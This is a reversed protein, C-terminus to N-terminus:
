SCQSSSEQGPMLNSGTKFIFLQCFKWILKVIKGNVGGQIPIRYQKHDVSNSRDRQESQKYARRAEDFEKLVEEEDFGRYSGDTTISKWAFKADLQKLFNRVRLLAFYSSESPLTLIFPQVEDARSALQRKRLSKQRRKIDIISTLLQALATLMEMSTYNSDKDADNSSDKGNGNDRGSGNPEDGAINDENDHNGSDGSARNDRDAGNDKDNGSHEDEIDGSHDSENADKLENDSDKDNRQKGANQKKVDTEHTEVDLGHSMEKTSANAKAMRKGTQQNKVTANSDMNQKSSACIHLDVAHHGLIASSNELSFISELQKLEEDSGCVPLGESPSIFGLQPRSSSGTATVNDDELSQLLEPSSGFDELSTVILEILGTLTSNNDSPQLDESAAPHSEILTSDSLIDVVIPKLVECSKRESGSCVSAFSVTDAHQRPDSHSDSRCQDNNAPNVDKRCEPSGSSTTENQDDNNTASVEGSDNDLVGLVESEQCDRSDMHLVFLEYFKWILKMIKGNVGGQIALHFQKRETNNNSDTHENQKFATQTEECENLVQETTYSNESGDAKTDQDIFEADFQNLFTWVHLFADYSSESPLSLTFPQVNDAKSALQMKRAAQQREKIDIITKLLEALETLMQIPTYADDKDEDKGSDKGNRNDDGSGKGEDDSSNNEDGDSGNDERFEEDNNVGDDHDKRNNEDGNGGDGGHNDENQNEKSENDNNARHKDNGTDADKHSNYFDKDGRQSDVDQEKVDTTHTEVDLGYPMVQMGKSKASSEGTQQYKQTGMFDKSMLGPNPRACIRLDVAQRGLIVNNEELTFVLKIPHHKLGACPSSCHFKYLYTVSSVGSKDPGDTSTQVTACHHNQEQLPITVSPQGTMPHEIYRSQPHECHILHTECGQPVGTDGKAHKQCRHPPSSTHSPEAYAVTARIICGSPPPNNLHFTVPIDACLRVYLKELAKSYIMSQTEISSPDNDFSFSFGFQGPNNDGKTSLKQDSESKSIVETPLIFGLRPKTAHGNAAMQDRELSQFSELSGGFDELTGVILEILETLTSNSDTLELDESAIPLSEFLAFDNIDDVVTLRSVERSKHASGSCDRSLSVLDECMRPDSDSASHSEDNNAIKVDKHEPSGNGIPLSQDNGPRKCEDYFNPNSDLSLSPKKKSSPYTFTPQHKCYQRDYVVSDSERNTQHDHSCDPVSQDNSDTNSDPILKPSCTSLPKVTNDCIVPIHQDNASPDFEPISVPSYRRKSQNNLSPKTDVSNDVDNHTRVFRVEKWLDSMSVQYQEEMKRQTEKCELFTNANLANVGDPETACTGVMEKPDIKKARNIENPDTSFEIIVEHPKGMGATNNQHLDYLEALSIEYLNRNLEENKARRAKIQSSSMYTAKKRHAFDVKLLDHVANRDHLDNTQVICAEPLDNIKAPEIVQVSLEQSKKNPLISVEQTENQPVASVQLDNSPVIEDQDKTSSSVSVKDTENIHVDSVESEKSDNTYMDKRNDGTQFIYLQCFKWILKVIKGNAGGQIPIHYQKREDNASGNRFGRKCAYVEKLIQEVFFSEHSCDAKIDENIFEADFQNLFTSLRLFAFYSSQSPLTLTFPQADDAKSALQTKRKEHQRRKIDIIGSLLDALAALMQIPAYGDDKEEDKRSSKENRIENDSVNEEDGDYGTDKSFDKENDFRNQLNTKNYEDGSGGVGYQDQENTNGKSEKNDNVTHKYEGADADVQGNETDKNNRQGDIEQKEEDTTHTENDLELSITKTSRKLKTMGKGPQQNKDTEMIDKTKKPAGKQNLYERELRNIRRSTNRKSKAMRKGTQQNKRTEMFDKSVLDRNPIACIRLNVAQCGLIVNNQELTFVLKMPHHKLGACFSSCRFQYLPTVSSLGSKDSGDASSQVSAANHNAEQLPVTVSHQGTVPHKIYEAQPHQCHVLHTKCGPPVEKDAKAHKQCRHVPSSAHSPETHVVTARIICEPPPPKDFNFTVPISAYHRVYFKELAKSYIMSNAEKSSPDNDFSFSFGYQGPNNDGNVSRSKLKLSQDCDRTSIGDTPLTLGLQPRAFNGNTAMDDDVPSQFSEPSGCFDELTSIILQMLGELTSGSDTPNSDKHEPPQPEATPCVSDGPDVVTLNRDRSSKSENGSDVTTLSVLDAHLSPDSDSASHCMDSYERNCDKRSVPSDSCETISQGYNSVMKSEDLPPLNPVLHQMPVIISSDTTGPKSNEHPEHKCDYQDYLAPNSGPDQYGSQCDPVTQVDADSTSEPTVKSINISAFKDTNDSNVPVSQDNATANLEPCFTPSNSSIKYNGIRPKIDAPNGVETFMEMMTLPNFLDRPFCSHEEDSAENCGGDTTRMADLILDEYNSGYIGVCGYPKHIDCMKDSCKQYFLDSLHVHSVDSLNENEPVDIENFKLDNMHTINMPEEKHASNVERSDNQIANVEQLDTTQGIDIKSLDDKKTPEIEQVSMEMFTDNPAISMDKSKNEATVSVKFDEHLAIDQCNNPVVSVNESGTNLSGSVEGNKSDSPLMTNIEKHNNTKVIGSLQQLDKTSLAPPAFVSSIPPLPNTDCIGDSLSYRSRFNLPPEYISRICASETSTTPVVEHIDSLLNYFRIFIDRLQQGFQGDM